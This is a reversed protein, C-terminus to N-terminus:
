FTRLVKLFSPLDALVKSKAWHAKQQVGPKRFHLIIICTHQELSGLKYHNAAPAMSFTHLGRRPRFACLDPFWLTSASITRSGLGESSEWPSGLKGAKCSYTKHPYGSGGLPFIEGPPCKSPKVSSYVIAAAQASQTWLAAPLFNSDQCPFNAKMMAPLLGAAGCHPCTPM